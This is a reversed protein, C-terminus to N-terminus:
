ALSRPLALDVCRGPLDARPSSVTTKEIREKQDLRGVYMRRASKAEKERQWIAVFELSESLACWNRHAVASSEILRRQYWKALSSFDSWGTVSRYTSFATDLSHRSISGIPMTEAGNHSELVDMNAPKNVM